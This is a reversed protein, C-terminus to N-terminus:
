SRVVIGFSIFTELSCLVFPRASAFRLFFSRLAAPAFGLHCNKLNVGTGSGGTQECCGVCSQKWHMGYQKLDPVSWWSGGRTISKMPEEMGADRAYCMGTQVALNKGSAGQVM